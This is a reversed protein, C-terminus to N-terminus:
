HQHTNFFILIFQDSNIALTSRNIARIKALSNIVTVYLCLSFLTVFFFEIFDHPTNMMKKGVFSVKVMILLWIQYFFSFM